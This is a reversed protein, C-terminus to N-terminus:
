FCAFCNFIPLDENNYHGEHLIGKKVYMYDLANENNGALITMPISEISLHDSKSWMGDCLTNRSQREEIIITVDASIWFFSAKNSVACLTKERMVFVFMVPHTKCRIRQRAWHRWPREQSSVFYLGVTQLVLCFYDVVNIKNIICSCIGTLNLKPLIKNIGSNICFYVRLIWNKCWLILITNYAWKTIGM